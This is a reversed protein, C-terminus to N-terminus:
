AELLRKFLHPGVLFTEKPKFSLTTRVTFMVVGHRVEVGFLGKLMGLCYSTVIKETQLCLPAWLSLLLILCVCVRVGVKSKKADEVFNFHIKRLWIALLEKM